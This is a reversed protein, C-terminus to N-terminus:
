LGLLCIHFCLNINYLREHHKELENFCAWEKAWIMWTSQCIYLVRPALVAPKRNLMRGRCNRSHCANCCPLSRDMYSFSSTFGCSCQPVGVRHLEWLVISNCCRYRAEVPLCNPVFESVRCSCISRDVSLDARGLWYFLLWSCAGCILRSFGRSRFLRSPLPPLYSIAEM